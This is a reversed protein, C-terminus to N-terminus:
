STRDWVPSTSPKAEDALSAPYVPEGSVRSAPWPAFGRIEIAWEWPAQAVAAAVESRTMEIWTVRGGLARHYVEAM